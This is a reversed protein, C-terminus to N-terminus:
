LGVFREVARRSLPSRVYVFSDQAYFGAVAKPDALIIQSTGFSYPIRYVSGYEEAWKEFLVSSDPSTHIDASVGFLLNKRPPGRLPTSRSNRRMSQIIWSLFWLGFFGVGLPHIVLKLMDSLTM